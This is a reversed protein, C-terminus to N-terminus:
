KKRMNKNNREVLIKMMERKKTMEIEKGRVELKRRLSIKMGILKLIILGIRKKNFNIILQMM